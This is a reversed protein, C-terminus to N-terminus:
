VGFWPRAWKLGVKTNVQPHYACGIWGDYGHADLLDFLYPYNIEGVTPEHRGPVGAIRIHSIRHLHAEIFDSLGGQTIQANHVDYLLRLNTDDVEDLVLAADDPRILFYDPVELPTIPSILLEVDWEAAKRAAQRLNRIYVQFAEDWGSEPVVGAMIHIRRCNLLDAYELARHLGKHFESERGALAAVGREGKSRDGAPATLVVAELGNVACLDGLRGLPIDYPEGLEVGKFGAAAIATFRDEYPLEQFLYSIHASFRPM